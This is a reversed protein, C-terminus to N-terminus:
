KNIKKYYDNYIKQYFNNLRINNKYLGDEFFMKNDSNEFLEEPSKYIKNEPNEAERKKDFKRKNEAKEAELLRTEIRKQRELLEPTIQRNVIDKKNEEAMKQIENLLKKTEPNLSFGSQMEKLMQKFIEQQALMKALQKTQADKSFNGKGNKMQELMQEMQKKLSQQMSKLDQMAQQKGPKPNSKGNGSGGAQQSNKMKNIIESLLLALNNASTMIKNQNVSASSIKREQLKEKTQNLNDSINNLEGTISKNIQPIRYALAKLSDKIIQFDESMNAQLDFLKVTEPNKNNLTKFKNILREQKFSFNLLNDLIKRLSEINESQQKMSNSQMMMDMSKAFNKMNQSNKSQSQSARKKKNKQLDQETQNFEQEIESQEKEFNNLKLKHKLEENLKEAEKYQKIIERFEEEIEKQKKLIENKDSNKQQTLDALNKQKDALKDLKNKIKNIKQEIQEKKLLEKTRDLRESMEKYSFEQKELIKELMKKNFMNQLEELQKMLEKLEPTMIEDLLKQIEEQKKLLEKDQESLKRSIINKQKNDQAIQEAYKKLLQQKNLINQLMQKNEWDSINGNLNKERLNQLDKKIEDALALSKEIKSNINKDAANELSDTMKQSPFSFDFVPTRAKKSGSVADNDWVEFFYEVKKNEDINLDAFNFAYYFNQRLKNKSFPLVATKFKTKDDESNKDTIRFKFFLNKFGYDDNIIGKFYTIFFNATDKLEEVRVSPYLDPIVTIDFNLIKESSFYKNAANLRYQTNKFFTEKYYFINNKGPIKITKKDSIFILTDANDPIFKWSLSTGFPIILNNENKLVTDKEGTYEPVNINVFFDLIGPAPLVNLSYEPSKVNQASFYFDVSNYLNKFEYFYESKSNKEKQMYFNGSGYNIFVKDPLYKGKIKVKIKLNEGKRCTLKKNILIFEFPPPDKFEQSYNIIHKTSETFIAPSILFASIFLILVPFTYKFYKKIQAYSIAESFPILKIENSKQIVSAIILDNNQYSALEHLELINLLKDEISKFHESIIKAAENYNIQKGIKFLKLLPILIRSIFVFLLLTIVSYLIIARIIGSFKLYFESYSVTLWIFATLTVFIVIGRLIKIKYYKKIFKDLKSILNQYENM